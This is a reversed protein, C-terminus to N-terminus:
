EGRKRELLLIRADQARMVQQLESVARALEAVSEALKTLQRAIEALHRAADTM